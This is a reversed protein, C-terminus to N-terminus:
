YGQKVCSNTSILYNGSVFLKNDKLRQQHIVPHQFFWTFSWRHNGGVKLPPFFFFFFYHPKLLCARGFPIQSSVIYEWVHSCNCPLPKVGLTGDLLYSLYYCLETICKEGLVALTKYVNISVVGQSIVSGTVCYHSQSCILIRLRNLKWVNCLPGEWGVFIQFNELRSFAASLQVTLLHQM